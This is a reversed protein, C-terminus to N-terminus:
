ICGFRLLEAFNHLSNLCDAALQLYSQSAFHAQIVSFRVRSTNSQFVNDESLGIESRLEQRTRGILGAASFSVSSLLRM